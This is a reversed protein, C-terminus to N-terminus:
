DGFLTLQRAKAPSTKPIVADALSMGQELLIRIEDFSGAPKVITGETEPFLLLAEDLGIGEDQLIDGSHTSVIIQRKSHRQVRAFMQPIYRAVGPHLSLEPEELLLPAKSEQLVWLLGILRLTGDSFQDEDQWAGRLRWHEYRGRLHPIGRSDTHLELEKLQPVALELAKQIRNLRARQTNKRTQAIGELFDGGFPDNIKGVSRDPERIIQPVLHLYRVSSFFEAVERFEKNTNVQELYTQTLREGDKKDSKDPRDLIVEGERVVKEETIMPRGQSDQRFKLSYQWREDEHGIKVSLVIDPIRRAALCRLSSLGGRRRVAAQFGGGVSALDRLFRFADLFNSKGSANPGVLFVRQPLTVKVSGFNRWNKLEIETFRVATARAPGKM